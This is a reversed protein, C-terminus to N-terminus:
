ADRRAYLDALALAPPLTRMGYTSFEAQYPAVISPHVRLFWSKPRGTIEFGDLKAYSRRSLVAVSVNAPIPTMWGANHLVSEGSLVASPYLIECATGMM